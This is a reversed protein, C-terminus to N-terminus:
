YLRNIIYNNLLLLNKTAENQNLQHIIYQSIQIHEEALDKAKQIGNTTKIMNIATDIDNSNQFERDILKYLPKREELAFFLPATLNGNKLDLGAPKGLTQSSSIIDLIDDIIQFALGLHKGYLYLKIQTIKDCKNLMAAGQCAAAILSATKYFSKETYNHISITYDFHILGQRVEGEAFDTIVKSITKVVEINNLNALYWSSQAFLFDGALVAVKTNFKNHVTDIGRRTDCDDIVDDHVLSATHIIETIEALRKHEPLISHTYASNITAKSILLVISPRIRKGGANFLHEAAAYLIPHKASVMKKLNHNLQTLDSNILDFISQTIKM